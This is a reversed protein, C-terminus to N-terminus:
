HFRQDMLCKKPVSALLRSIFHHLPFSEFREVSRRVLYIFRHMSIARTRISPTEGHGQLFAVGCWVCTNVFAIKMVFEKVKKIGTKITETLETMQSELGFSIGVDVDIDVQVTLVKLGESRILLPVNIKGLAQWLPNPSIAVKKLTKEFFTVAQGFGSPTM